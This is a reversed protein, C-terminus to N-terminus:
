PYRTSRIGAASSISMSTSPRATAAEIPLPYTTSRNRFRVIGHTLRGDREIVIWGLASKFPSQITLVAQDGPHYAAQDTDIRVVPRLAPDMDPAGPDYEFDGSSIEQDRSDDIMTFFGHHRALVFLSPGTSDRSPRMVQLYEVGPARALGSEDSAGRWLVHNGANRIELRAGSLPEGTGLSTVWILSNKRGFRAALALDSVQVLARHYAPSLDNPANAESAALDFYLLGQGLYDGFLDKLSLPKTERVNPSTKFSLSRRRIEYPPTDALANLHTSSFPQYLENRIIFPIATNPRLFHTRVELQEINRISLPFIPHPSHALILPRHPMRLEPRAPGFRVSRATPPSIPQGHKDRLEPQISIRYETEPRYPGPLILRAIERDPNEAASQRLSELDHGPEIRLCDLLSRVSVPNTLTIELIRTPSGPQPPRAWPDRHYRQDHIASLHSVAAPNGTRRRRRRSHHFFWLPREPCVRCGSDPRGRTRGRPSWPDGPRRRIPRNSDPTIRAPIGPGGRSQFFLDNLPLVPVVPQNFTLRIEPRLPLGSTGPSPDSELLRTPPPYYDFAIDDPRVADDISKLGGPIVIRGRPFAELVREPELVYTYPDLWRGKGKIPPQIILPAPGEPRVTGGPSVPGHMPHDFMAMFRRIFPVEGRPYVALVRLEGEGAAATAHWGLILLTGASPHLSPTGATGCSGNPPM